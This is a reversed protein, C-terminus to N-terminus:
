FDMGLQEQTALVEFDQKTTNKEFGETENM